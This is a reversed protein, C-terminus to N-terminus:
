LMEKTSQWAMSPLDSQASTTRTATRCRRWLARSSVVTSASKTLSATRRAATVALQGGTTTTPAPSLWPTGNIRKAWLM